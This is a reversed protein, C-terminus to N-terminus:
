FWNFLHEEASIKKTGTHDKWSVDIIVRIEASSIRTVTVTRSFITDGGLILHDYLGSTANKKLPNVCPNMLQTSDWQVCYVGDAAPASGGFYGFTGKFGDTDRLNRVLEAGEQALGSAIFNNRVFEANSLNSSIIAFTAAIAVSLVFLSVLTEVLTFGSTKM